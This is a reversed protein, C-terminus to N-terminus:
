LDNVEREMEVKVETVGEDPRVVPLRKAPAYREWVVKQDQQSLETTLKVCRLLPFSLQPLTAM